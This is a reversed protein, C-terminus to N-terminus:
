NGAIKGPLAPLCVEADGRGFLYGLVDHGNHVNWLLFGLVIVLLILM